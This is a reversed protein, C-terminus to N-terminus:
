DITPVVSGATGETRFALDLCKEMSLTYARRLLEGGAPETRPNQRAGIVFYAESLAYVLDRVPPKRHDHAFFSWAKLFPALGLAQAYFSEQAGLFRQLNYPDTTTM